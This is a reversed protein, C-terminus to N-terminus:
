PNIVAKLINVCGVTSETDDAMAKAIIRLLKENKSIADVIYELVVGHGKEANNYVVPVINEPSESLEVIRCSVDSCGEIIQLLGQKNSTTAVDYTTDTPIAWTGDHRLYKGDNAGLAPGNTVVGTASFKTLHGSTTIGNHTVGNYPTIDINSGISNVSFNLINSAASPRTLSYEKWPIYTYLLGQRDVKVPYIRKLVNAPAPTFVENLFEVYGDSERLSLSNYSWPDLPSNSDYITALQETTYPNGIINWGQLYSTANISGINVFAKGNSDLEVKYKNESPINTFGLKIGGYYNATAGRLKLIGSSVSFSNDSQIGLLGIQSNSGYPVRVPNDSNSAIYGLPISNNDDLNLIDPTWSANIEPTESWINTLWDSLNNGISETGSKIWDTLSVEGDHGMLVVDSCTEPHIVTDKNCSFKLLNFGKLKWDIKM